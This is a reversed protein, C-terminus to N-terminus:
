KRLSEVITNLCFHLAALGVLFLGPIALLGILSSSPWHISIFYALSTLWMGGVLVLLSKLEWRM